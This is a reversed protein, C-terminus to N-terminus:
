GGRSRPTPKIKSFKPTSVPTCIPTRRSWSNTKRGPAALFRRLKARRRRWGRRRAALRYSGASADCLGRRPGLARRTYRRGKARRTGCGCGSRVRDPITDRNKKDSKEQRKGARLKRALAIRRDHTGDGDGDGGRLPSVIAELPLTACGGGRDWRGDQTAGPTAGPKLGAHAAAADLAYAIRFRTM